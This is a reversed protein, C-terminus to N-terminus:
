TGQALIPEAGGQDAAALLAPLYLPAFRTPSYRIDDPTLLYSAMPAEVLNAPDLCLAGYHCALSALKRNFAATAAEAERRRRGLVGDPWHPEFPCVLLLREYGHASLWELFSAYADLAAEVANGGLACDGEGLQIVVLPDGLRCALVEEFHRRVPSGPDGLARATADKQRYQLAICPDLRLSQILYDFLTAHSDGLFVFHRYEPYRGRGIEREVFDHYNSGGYSPEGFLNSAYFYVADPHVVLSRYMFRDDDAVFPREYLYFPVRRLFDRSQLCRTDPEPPAAVPRRLRATAHAPGPSSEYWNTMVRNIYPDGGALMAPVPLEARAEQGPTGAGYRVWAMLRPRTTPITGHHFGYTDAVFGTGAEGTIVQAQGGLLSGILDPRGYGDEISRFLDNGLLRAFGPEFRQALLHDVPERQHTAAYFHHAGDTEGVATLYIFLTCFQYFDYDRHPQQSDGVQQTFAGPMSWFVNLSYITPTCGLYAAVIRLLLPDNALRWLHPMRVLTGHDYSAYRDCVYSAALSHRGDPQGAWQHGSVVYQGALYNRIDRVESESFLRGLRAFGDQRMAALLGAAHATQSPDLPRQWCRRPYAREVHLAVRRRVNALRAFPLARVHLDHPLAFFAEAEEATFPADTDSLALAEPPVSPRRPDAVIAAADPAGRRYLREALDLRGARLALYLPTEGFRNALGIEAL